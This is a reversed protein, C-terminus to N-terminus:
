AGRRARRRQRRSVKEFFGRQGAKPFGKFHLAINTNISGKVIISGQSIAIQSIEFIRVRVKLTEVIDRHSDSLTRSTESVEPVSDSLDGLVRPCQGLLRRSRESM